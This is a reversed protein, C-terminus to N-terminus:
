DIPFESFEKLQNSEDFLDDSKMKQIRKKEDKLCRISEKPLGSTWSSVRSDFDLWYFVGPSQESWALFETISINPYEKELRRKFESRVNIKEKRVRRILLDIMYVAFDKTTEFNRGFWDPLKSIHELNVDLIRRLQSPKNEIGCAIVFKNGLQFDYLHHGHSFMLFGVYLSRELVGFIEDVYYTIKPDHSNDLRDMDPATKIIVAVQGIESQFVFDFGLDTVDTIRSYSEDKKLISDLISSVSEEFLRRREDENIDQELIREFVLRIRNQELQLIEEAGAVGHVLKNRLDTLIRADENKIQLKDIIQYFPLPSNDNYILRVRKEVLEMLQSYSVSDIEEKRIIERIQRDIDVLLRM